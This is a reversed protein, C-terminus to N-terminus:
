LDEPKIARAGARFEEETQIIGPLAIEIDPGHASGGEISRILTPATTSIRFEV